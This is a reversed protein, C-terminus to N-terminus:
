YASPKLSRIAKGYEKAGFIYSGSVLIDAVIAKPATKDNIGGDVELLIKRGDIKERLQKLKKTSDPLFAQGGFGPEVSMVLVQDALALYPFLKKIPTRPRCTIGLRANHKKALAKLQKFLALSCVEQHVTITDAGAQLFRPVYLKPNTIMLHVDLHLSTTKRLAKVMAPGFTINPVFHGDMVDVHLWSVHKEVAKIESSLNAMDASLISPAIIVM